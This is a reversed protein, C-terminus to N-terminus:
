NWVTSLPADEIPNTTRDTPIATATADIPSTGRQVTRVLNGARDYYFLTYMYNEIEYEHALYANISDANLCEEKYSEQLELVRLNTNRLKEAELADVVMQTFVQECESSVRITTDADLVPFDTFKMCVRGSCVVEDVCVKCGHLLSLDPPMYTTHTMFICTDASITGGVVCSDTLSGSVYSYIRGNFNSITPATPAKLTYTVDKFTNANRTGSIAFRLQNGVLRGMSSVATFGAPIDEVFVLSDTLALTSNFFIRVRVMTESKVYVTDYAEREFSMAKSLCASNLMRKKKSYGFEFTSDTNKLQLFIHCGTDDLPATLLTGGGALPNWTYNKVGANILSDRLKNEKLKLWELLALRRNMTINPVNEYGDICASDPVSAPRAYVEINGGFALQITKWKASSIYGSSDPTVDCKSKCAEVVAKANCFIKELTVNGVSTPRWTDYTFGEVTMKWQDM